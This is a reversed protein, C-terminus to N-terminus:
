IRAGPDSFVKGKHSKDRYGYDPLTGIQEKTMPVLIRESDPSVSVRSWTLEVSRQGMGLFGGVSIIISEVAGDAGTRVAEIEGLKEDDTNRVENGILRAANVRPEDPSAPGPATQQAWVSVVAIPSSALTAGAVVAMLAKRISM